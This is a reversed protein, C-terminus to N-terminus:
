EGGGINQKRYGGGVYGCEDEMIVDMVVTDV